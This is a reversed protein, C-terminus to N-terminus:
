NISQDVRDILLQFWPTYRTPNNKVDKSLVHFSIYKYSAVEETNVQPLDDTQGIFVHDLEHEILGTDLTAKYQFSFLRTLKAKMGMEEFLRRNAADRTLEGQYPHTCAANSWMLQSHYKHSARQQLLWESKSNIIFISVARHLIGENHVAKKEMIGVEIDNEDVLIVSNKNIINM